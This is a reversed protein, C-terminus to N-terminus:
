KKRAPIFWWLILAIGSFVFVILWWPFENAKEERNEVRGAMPLAVYNEPIEATNKATEIAGDPSTNGADTITDSAAKTTNKPSANSIIPVIATTKEPVRIISTSINGTTIAESENTEPTSVVTPVSDTSPLSDPMTEPIPLQKVATPYYITNGTESFMITCEYNERDTADSLCTKLDRPGVVSSLDSIAFYYLPNTKLIEFTESPLSIEVEENAPLQNDESEAVYDYIRHFEPDTPDFYSNKPGNEWWFLHLERLVDKEDAWPRWRTAAEDNFLVRITSNNPNLATIMFFEESLLEEPTEELTWYEEGDITLAQAPGVGVMLTFIFILTSIITFKKPM